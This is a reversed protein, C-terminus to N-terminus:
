NSFYSASPASCGPATCSPVPAAMACHGNPAFCDIFQESISLEVTAEYNGDAMPVVSVVRAGRVYADVYTRISDSQTAFASVATGGWIRFGQVQEALNRYADVQAARMAMLKQQAQNYQGYGSIAGYGVATLKTPSAVVSPKPLTSCNSILSNCYYGDYPCGSLLAACSLTSAILALRSFTGM